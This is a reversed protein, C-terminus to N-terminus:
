GPPARRGAERGSLKSDGMFRDIQVIVGGGPNVRGHHLSTDTECSAVRRDICAKPLWTPSASFSACGPAPRSPASCSESIM